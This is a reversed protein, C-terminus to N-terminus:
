EEVKTIPAFSALLRKVGQQPFAIDLEMDTGTGNVSVVTGTGWKKHTVKDGTAWSEKDAGTGTNAVKPAVKKGPTRRPTSRYTTAQSAQSAYGGYLGQSTKGFSLGGQNESQILQDDIEDVFDSPQNRQVRGYLMRSYANTLYLKREARTIGVYALRREEEMEENNEMSRALPFVGTEMGVLFVVPFELGKAAHLTMLTVAPEQEDVDDQDSVLALDALFNM